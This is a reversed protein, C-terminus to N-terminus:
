NISDLLDRISILEYRVSCLFRETVTSDLPMANDIPINEAMAANQSLNRLSCNDNKQALLKSSLSGLDNGFDQGSATMMMEQLKNRAGVITFGQEYLLQRIQRILEVEHLQYYRRNGRRKMPRLQTFEQEWYRLVHPKVGCLKSVESITFYRKEPIPLSSYQL